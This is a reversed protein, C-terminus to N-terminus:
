GLVSQRWAALLGHRWTCRFDMVYWSSKLIIATLRYSCPHVGLAINLCAPNSRATIPFFFGFSQRISQRLMSPAFPSCPRSAAGPGSWSVGGHPGAASRVAAGIRLDGSLRTHTMSVEKGARTPVILAMLQGQM